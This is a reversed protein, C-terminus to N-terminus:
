SIWIHQIIVASFLKCLIAIQLSSVKSHAESISALQAKLKATQTSHDALQAKFHAAEEQAAALKSSLSGKSRELSEM